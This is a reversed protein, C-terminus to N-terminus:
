KTKREVESLLAFNICNANIDHLCAVNIANGERDFQMAYYVPYWDISQFRVRLDDPIDTHTPLMAVKQCMKLYENREIMDFMGREKRPPKAAAM